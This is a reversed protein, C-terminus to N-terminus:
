GQRTTQLHHTQPPLHLSVAKAATAVASAVTPVANADKKLWSVVASPLSVTPSGSTLSLGMIGHDSCFPIALQAASLRLSLGMQYCAISLCPPAFTLFQTTAVSPSVLSGLMRPREKAECCSAPTPRAPIADLGDM